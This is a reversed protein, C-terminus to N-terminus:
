PTFWLRIKLTEQELLADMVQVNKSGLSSWRAASVFSTPGTTQTFSINESQFPTKLALASRIVPLIEKQLTNKVLEPQLRDKELIESPDWDHDLLPLSNTRIYVMLPLSAQVAQATLVEVEIESNSQLSATLAQIETALVQVRSGESLPLGMQQAYSETLELIKAVTAEAQKPTANPSTEFRLLTEDAHALILAQRQSKQGQAYQPGNTYGRHLNNKRLVSSEQGPTAKFTQSRESKLPRDLSAELEADSMFLPDANLRARAYQAKQAQLDPASAAVPVFAQTNAQLPLSSSEPLEQVQTVPETAPLASAEGTGAHKQWHKFTKNIQALKQEQEQMQAIVIEDPNLLIQRDHPSILLFLAFMGASLAMSLVVTMFTSTHKPRLSFLTLKKKGIKRGLENGLLASIGGSLVFLLIIWAAPKL